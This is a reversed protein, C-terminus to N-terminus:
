FRRPREVNAKIELDNIRVYNSAAGSMKVQCYRGTKAMGTRTYKNSATLQKVDSLTGGDVSYQFAIKPSSTNDANIVATHFKKTRDHSGMYNPGFTYHWSIATGNDTYVGAPFMRYALGAATGVYLKEAGNSDFFQIGCNFTYTDYSWQQDPFQIKVARNVTTNTGEVVGCVYQRKSRFYMGYFKGYQAANFNMTDFDMTAKCLLESTVGNCIRFGDNSLFIVANETMAASYAAICGHSSDIQIYRFSTPDYGVVVGWSNKKAVVLRDGVKRIMTIEDGDDPSISLYNSTPWSEPSNDLQKSYYLLSKSVNDTTDGAGFLCSQFEEIYKLTPPPNNDTEVTAGLVSDGATVVYATASSAIEVLLNYTGVATSPTRYIRKYDCQSDGTAPLTVTLGGGSATLQYVTSAETPNSELGKRSNYQTVKFYYDGSAMAASGFTYGSLAVTPVTSPASVGMNEWGDAESYTLNGNVGNVFFMRGAYNTSSVRRGGFQVSQGYTSGQTTLGSKSNAFTGGAAQSKRITGDACFAFLSTDASGVYRHMSNVLPTSTIAVSNFAQYGLRTYCGNPVSFDVNQADTFHEPSIDTPSSKNDIGGFKRIQSTATILM